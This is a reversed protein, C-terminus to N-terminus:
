LSEKVKYGMGKNGRVTPIIGNSTLGQLALGTMKKVSYKSRGAIRPRCDYEVTTIKVPLKLFDSRLFVTKKETKELMDIANSSVLRYDAHGPIMKVGFRGLLRYYANASAKKFVGDERRDSRVACVVESGKGYEELMLDVADLSNQGDADLSIAANCRDKVEVLGAYIALQQGHNKDLSIGSVRPFEMALLKIRERTEDTSGDDVLLIGSEEAAKGDEILKNIKNILSKTTQLIVAEENYCPVVFFLIPKM